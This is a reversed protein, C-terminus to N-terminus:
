IQHLHGTNSGHRSFVQRRPKQGPGICLPSYLWLLHNSDQFKPNLFFFSQVIWTAFVFASILQAASRRRQKRMHSFGTKEHPPEYLIVYRIQDLIQKCLFHSMLNILCFSSVINNLNAALRKFILWIQKPIWM